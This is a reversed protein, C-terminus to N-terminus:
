LKKIFAKISALSEDRAEIHGMHGIKFEISEMNKSSAQEILSNYNLATDYKGIIMFKPFPSFNLIVERDERIKMGELAAIVGQKSTSLAQKKITKLETSFIKRNKPRFLLPIATRIFSKHDRKVLAIAKDRNGKKEESDSRSTSHFLCLGKVNDPYKEVMALAVYGGMSHGVLVFKRIKLSDLVAKVYLAMKEM